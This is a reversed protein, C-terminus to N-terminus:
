YKKVFVPNTALTQYGRSGVLIRYYNASEGLPSQDIYWEDVTNQLRYTKVLDKNKYLYVTTARSNKAINQLKIHIAVPPASLMLTEGMFASRETAMDWASFDDLFISNGVYDRTAYMRGARIADYIGSRSKEKAFVFTNTAAVQKLDNSEEFDLEGIAYVPKTRYGSCYEDLVIDWIGGPRGIAKMGEWFIAFGTYDKTETIMQPYADTEIKITQKLLPINVPRIISSSVEPHAWFIMGNNDNVYNILEQFPGGGPNGHYQDYKKPLFPYESYLVYGLVLTILLAKWSFRYKKRRRRSVYAIDHRRRSRRIISFFAILFLVFYLFVISFYMFNASIYKMLKGTPLKYGLGGNPISPLNKFADVTNFGFVLLHTHWNRLTLNNYMPSGEWYYFPVAEVGPIFVIDPYMRNIQDIELLYQEVGYKAISNEQISFKLFNQFPSIGYSVKMNDHDTIIAADLGYSDAIGALEGMTYSGGSVNSDFHIGTKLRYYGNFDQAIANSISLLTIFFSTKWIKSKV